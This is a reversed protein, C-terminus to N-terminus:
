EVNEQNILSCPEIYGLFVSYTGLRDGSGDKGKNVVGEAWRETWEVSVIAKQRAPVVVSVPCLATQVTGEPDNPPLKYLEVIKDQVAKESIDNNTLRSILQHRYNREFEIQVQLPAEGSSNDLGPTDSFSVVETLQEGTEDSIHKLAFEVRQPGGCAAVMTLSFLVGAVSYAVYPRIFRSIRFM